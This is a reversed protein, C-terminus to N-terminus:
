RRLSKKAKWVKGSGEKGEEEDEWDGREVEEGEGVGARGDVRKAIPLEESGEEADETADSTRGAERLREQWGESSEPKYIATLMQGNEVTGLFKSGDAVERRM